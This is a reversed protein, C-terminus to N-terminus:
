DHGEESFAFPQFMAEYSEGCDECTLILTEDDFSEVLETGFCYKCEM